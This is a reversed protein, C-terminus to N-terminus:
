CRLPGAGCLSLGIRHIRMRLSRSWIRPAGKKWAFAVEKELMFRAVANLAKKDVPTFDGLVVAKEGVNRHTELRPREASPTDELTDQQPMSHWVLLFCLALLSRLVIRERKHLVSLLPLMYSHRWFRMQFGLIVARLEAGPM